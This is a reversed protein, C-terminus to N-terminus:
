FETIKINTTKLWAYLQIALTKDQSVRNKIDQLLARRDYNSNGEKVPTIDDDSKM